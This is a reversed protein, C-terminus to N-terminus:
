LMGEAPLDVTMREGSGGMSYGRIKGEKVLEWAWPEWVVGMFVTGAPFEQESMTGTEVNLMPVTVPYPWSLAEVCEGATVETNHQLRIARDEGAMYKWLALQLEDSDTWEGHADYADPVYWPGLTYRREEAAKFIGNVALEKVLPEIETLTSLLHGVRTDTPVWGEGSERWVRILVAPDDQSGDITFSSDPVNLSSDTIREVKGRARGGSSGWSVFSGTKIQKEFASAVMPRKRDRRNSRGAGSGMPVDVHVSNLGPEGKELGDLISRTWSKAPDGGWAAWAVRGASPYGPEGPSWGEGRKDVEHRALYSAMRKITELSVSRGAALTSARNRGVDTFGGGAEGEAIWRLARQAEERVGQPPSYSDAAKLIAPVDRDPNVKVWASRIRSKVGALDSTPIAVRNGRFGGPSLAQVARAVQAPTEKDTPNDWLRLKWTSPSEPDPVYAFAEAPYQEGDETKMTAKSFQEINALRQQAEELTPYCGFEHEGDASTVCFMGDRQVIDKTIPTEHARLRDPIIWLKCLGEPAISGEVWYCGGVEPCYAVCNVCALGEDYFASREMYHADWQTWCGVADAILDYAHATAASRLTLEGVDVGEDMGESDEEYGNKDTAGVCMGDEPQPGGCIRCRVTGKRTTWIARKFEHAQRAAARKRNRRIDSNEQEFSIAKGFVERLRDLLDSFRGTPAESYEGYDDDEEYDTAEEGDDELDDEAPMEDMDEADSPAIVIRYGNDTLVSAVNVTTAGMSMMATIQERVDDPLTELGALQAIPVNKIIEILEPM